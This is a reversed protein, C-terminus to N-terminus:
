LLCSTYFGSIHPQGWLCVRSLILSFRSLVSSHRATTGIVVLENNSKDRYVTTWAYSLQCRHVFVTTGCNELLYYYVLGREWGFPSFGVCPIRYFRRFFSDEKSGSVRIGEARLMRARAKHYNEQSAQCFLQEEFRGMDLCLVHGRPWM